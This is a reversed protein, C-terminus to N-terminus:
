PSGGKPLKHCCLSRNVVERKDEPVHIIVTIRVDGSSFSEAYSKMSIRLPGKNGKSDDPSIFIKLCFDDSRSSRTTIDLTMMSYKDFSQRLFM